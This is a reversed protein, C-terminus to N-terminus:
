DFRWSLGAYLSHQKFYIPPQYLYFNTPQGYITKDAFTSEQYHHSFSIGKIFVDTKHNYHYLYDFGWAQAKAKKLELTVDDSTRADVMSQAYLLAHLEGWIHFQQRATKILQQRLGVKLFFEDYTETTGYVNNKNAVNRINEQGHLGLYIESEKIPLFGFSAMGQTLFHTTESQHPIGSQTQGDYPMVGYSQQVQGQLHFKPNILWDLGYIITPIAGQEKVLQQGSYPDKETLSFDQIGAGVFLSNQASCLSSISSFIGFFSIIFTKKM